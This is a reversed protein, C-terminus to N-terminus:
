FFRPHGKENDVFSFNFCNEHKPAMIGLSQFRAGSGLFIFFINNKTHFFEIKNIDIINHQGYRELFDKIAKRDEGFLFYFLKWTKPSNHLGLSELVHFIWSEQNWQIQTAWVSRVLGWVVDHWSYIAMRPGSYIMVKINKKEREVM